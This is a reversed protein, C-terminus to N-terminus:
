AARKREVSEVSALDRNAPGNMVKGYCDFRSGHCPCDWTSESRNWHVICGLHPCAASCEHLAGDPDRYVAVKQLGRRMVAGSGRAIQDVAKVEGGTLWDAYQRAVNLNETTYERAAGITKRSPDYLAAWPNSRGLILDCLLMGAITGHTLGMGSDGTHIYVNDEDMPNRGTFALYDVTEMILGGWRFAIERVMPFRARTWAELRAHPQETAHAQGSKHDEGGVILIDEAAGAAVRIYHYPDGTDWSLVSPVSGHPVRAGIVYTMYPAQKTHIAVRDNVPTNTAVVVADATVIRSGVHVLAPTGGEIRDAHSGTYIKAGHRQLARALGALYKLPHFQGQRPFRLCPGTDFSTFPARALRAVDRLGARHAAAIEKDLTELKDGEALFLYGDVRAFDCDIGEERVIEEIREIAATHSEAALRAGTAGHLRELEFYRDDMMNTLHASSMQTMGGGLPGDDLLAVSRGSKALLYATTLGAIGGGVVCVQVHVDEALPVCLLTEASAAWVSEHRSM